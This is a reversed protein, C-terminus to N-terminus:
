ALVVLDLPEVVDAVRRGRLEERRRLGSYGQAVALAAAEATALGCVGEEKCHKDLKAAVNVADGIVTYELRSKTGVAGFVVRGTTMAIHISLPERGKAERESAWALAEELIDDVAALADAAYTNSPLAASFTALIGDGLFKDISGGHRQLVPVLREQYESLLAITEDPALRRALKTFGRIDAILIAADRLEGFGSRLQEKSALIKDAIEPAFFRTLEQRATQEAISRILLARARVIALALIATTALIALIKDFEAGLLINNSTLYVVYNRTIASDPLAYAVMCVWGLTAVFGSLMVYRAEFRLARLAIFIFVYLFTPAKLYFSPPQDFQIHFSWILTLLLAMDAAVSLSLLWAPLQRRYALWIRLSTFGLYAGLVWPVLVVRAQATFDEPKPALTWLAGFTLVLGLQMWGILRESADQEQEVAARVGRPLDKGGTGFIKEVLRGM